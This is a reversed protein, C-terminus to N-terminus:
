LLRKVALQLLIREDEVLAASQDNDFGGCQDAPM